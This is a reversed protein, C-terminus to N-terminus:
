GQIKSPICGEVMTMMCVARPMSLYESNIARDQFRIAAGRMCSTSERAAWFIMMVKGASCDIWNMLRDEETKMEGFGTMAAWGMFQIAGWDATSGIADERVQLCTM